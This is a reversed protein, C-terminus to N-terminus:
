HFFRSKGGDKGWIKCSEKSYIYHGFRKLCFHPIQCFATQLVSPVKQKESGLREARNKGLKKKELVQKFLPLGNLSQSKWLGPESASQKSGQHNGQLSGLQVRSPSHRM